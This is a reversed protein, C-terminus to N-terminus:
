YFLLVNCILHIIHTSKKTSCQWKKNSWQYCRHSSWQCFTDKFSSEPSSIHIFNKWKDGDKLCYPSWQTNWNLALIYHTKEFALNSLFFSAAFTIIRSSFFFQSKKNVSMHDHVKMIKPNFINWLPILCFWLYIFWVCCIKFVIWHTKKSEYLM